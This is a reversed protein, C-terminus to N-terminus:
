TWGLAAEGRLIAEVKPTHKSGSARDHLVLPPLLALPARAGKIWRVLVRKAPREAFPQVPRIALGAGQPSFLAILDAMRDARHIVVVRGGDRVTQRLFRAWAQLGDDAIWAGRREPSPARLASPDDFFPPNAFACDFAPEGPAGSGIAAFGQAVDGARVQVRAQLDNLAVAAEALGLAAADREIGLLASGPARLAAQILAAGAGCGAEIAREGPKLGVAAALLAADMGARYGRRPFLLRGRGGLVAVEEVEAAREFPPSLPPVPKSFAGEPVAQVRMPGM